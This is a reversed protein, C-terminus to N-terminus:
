SFCLYGIFFLLSAIGAAIGIGSLGSLPITWLRSLASGGNALSNMIATYMAMGAIAGIVGGVVASGAGLASYYVLDTQSLGGSDAPQDPLQETEQGSGSDSECLATPTAASLLLVAMMLCAITTAFKVKM